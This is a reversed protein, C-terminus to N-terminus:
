DLEKETRVDGDVVDLLDKIHIDAVNQLFSGHSLGDDVQKFQKPRSKKTLVKWIIEFMLLLVLFKDFLLIDINLMLHFFIWLGRILTRLYSSFGQMLHPLKQSPDILTVGLHDLHRPPDFFVNKSSVATQTLSVAFYGKEHQRGELILLGVLFDHEFQFAFEIISIVTKKLYAVKGFSIYCEKEGKM